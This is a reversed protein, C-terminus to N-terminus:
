HLSPESLASVYEPVSRFAEECILQKNSKELFLNKNDKVM